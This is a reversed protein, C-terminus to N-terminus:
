RRDRRSKRNAVHHIVEAAPKAPPLLAGGWRQDGLAAARVAPEVPRGLPLVQVTRQRNAEDDVIVVRMPMEHRQHQLTVADFGANEGIRLRQALTQGTALRIQHKGIDRRDGAV